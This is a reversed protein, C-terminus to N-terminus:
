GAILSPSCPHSFAHISTNIIGTKREKTIINIHHPSGAAINNTREREREGEREREKGKKRQTNNNRQQTLAEVFSGPYQM